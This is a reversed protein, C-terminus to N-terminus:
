QAVDADCQAVDTIFGRQRRQPARAIVGFRENGLVSAPGDSLDLVTRRLVRGDELLKWARCLSWEDTANRRHALEGPNQLSGLSAIRFSGFFQQRKNVVFQASEGNRLHGIFRGSLGQLGGGEDMFGPQSQNTVFIMTPITARVKESCRGLGHATYKDVARAAFAGGPM